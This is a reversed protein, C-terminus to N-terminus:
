EGTRQYITYNSNHFAVRYQDHLLRLMYDHIPPDITASHELWGSYIVNAAIFAPRQGSFYGLRWDDVIGSDFGFAFAFEGAAIIDPPASSRRLFAVANDYDWREATGSFSRGLATVQVAAFLILVVTVVIRQFRRTRSFLFHLYIALLAGALPLTHILYGSSKFGDVIGMTVYELLGVAMLARYGRHKRLSPTLLCGAVGLTYILLSFLPLRDAGMAYRGFPVGYRLSYEGKLSRFAGSLSLVGALRNVGTFETGIGGINGLIQRAFQSPAKWIYLGWGSLAAAYPVVVLGFNRWGIRRRDFYLTLLLLGSAYLEGCPHTLCSAAALANGALIARPLSKERLHLYVLWGLTGFAACTVDPRGLAAFMLFRADTAPILISLLAIGRNGSLLSVIGYWALLAVAGAMISLWRLPLLGFGFLRYWLAQLLPYLPPIWYTHRDVGEMWTGKSALITTGLYGKHLLTFAPSAFWAENDWIYGSIATRGALLLYVILAAALLAGHRSRTM